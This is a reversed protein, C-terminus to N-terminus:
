ISPRMIIMWTERLELVIDKLEGDYSANESNIDDQFPKKDFIVYSSTGLKIADSLEKLVM